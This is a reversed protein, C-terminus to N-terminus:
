IFFVSFCAAHVTHVCMLFSFGAGHPVGGFPGWCGLGSKEGEVHEDGPSLQAMHDQGPGAPQQKHPPHRQHGGPGWGGM